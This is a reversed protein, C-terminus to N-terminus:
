GLGDYTLGNSARIARARELAANTEADEGRAIFATALDDWVDRLEVVFNSSGVLVGNAFYAGSDSAPLIDYTADHRYAIVDVGVLTDGDVRDGARLDRFRRGDPFGEVGLRRRQAAEVGAEGRQELEAGRSCAAAHIGLPQRIAKIGTEFNSLGVPSVM